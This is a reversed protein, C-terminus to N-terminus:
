QRLQNLNGSLHNLSKITLKGGPLEWLSGHDEPLSSRIHVEKDSFELNLPYYITSLDGLPHPRGVPRFVRMQGTHGANEWWLEKITALKNVQGDISFGLSGGFFGLAMPDYSPITGLITPVAIESAPELTKLGGGPYFSLGLRVKIPGISTPVTATEKPWLSLTKLDGGPYFGASSIVLSGVYSGDLLVIECPEALAREDKLTWYASLRGDLPIMTRIAGNPYWSIREVKMTFQGARTSNLRQDGHNNSSLYKPGNIQTQNELRM